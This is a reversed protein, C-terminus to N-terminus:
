GDARSLRVRLVNWSLPPLSAELLGPERPAAAPFSRPQLADGGTSEPEGGGLLHHELSEIPGFGRVECRLSVEQTTARNVAFLAIEPAGDEHTAVAEVLPVPGHESTEFTDSSVETILVSGRAWRAAQSFPYFTSQRWAARGADARIPAGVNILLAECGIRVRDCHRLLAILLDGYVVTEALTYAGEGRPQNRVWPEMREEEGPHPHIVNWEDFSIQMQRPNRRRARVYDCTALAERIYADLDVGSALFDELSGRDSPYYQHLALFDVDDYALDLVTRDWDPFTEMERKSSGAAVLQIRDDVQRMARATEAALRGYEHATKHGLQWPGDMENGLGWIRIDHPDAAGHRRRLDSLQSGAPHNCYELLRCADEIGRTGLNVVMLPEVDVLRAWQMFENVGIENTETTRWALDLRHPRQERPGVGDEWRYGSVFNGGPYRVLTVGLERVLQAVDGRFGHEDAQPDGPEYLGGYVTRGLHEVFSGFLRRDIDGVVFDRDLVVRATSAM